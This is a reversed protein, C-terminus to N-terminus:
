FLFKLGMQMQRSPRATSSIVGFAATGLTPGPQGLQPTNFINFAEARFELRM